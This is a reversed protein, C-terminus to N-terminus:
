PELLKNNFTFKFQGSYVKTRDTGYNSSFTTSMRSTPSLHNLYIEVGTYTYSGTALFSNDKRFEIESITRGKLAKLEGAPYLQQYRYQNRITTSMMTFPINNNTSGYQGPPIPEACVNPVTVETAAGGGGGETYGIDPVGWINAGIQTAFPFTDKTAGKAYQVSVTKINSDGAWPSPYANGFNKSQFGSGWEAVVYDTNKTLEVPSALRVFKWEDAVPSPIKVQALKKQSKFDFLTVYRAGAVITKPLVVGLETVFIDDSTCTFRQGTILNPDTNVTFGSPVTKKFPYLADGGAGPVPWDGLSRWGTWYTDGVSINYEYTDNGIDYFSVDTITVNDGELLSKPSITINSCNIMPPRNKIVIPFLYRPEYTIYEIDFRVTDDYTWGKIAGYCDDFTRASEFDFGLGIFGDNLAEEMIQAGAPTKILPTLDKAKPGPTWTLGFLRTGSGA